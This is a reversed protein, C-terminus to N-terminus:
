QKAANVREILRQTAANLPPVNEPIVFPVDKPLNNSEEKAEDVSLYDRDVVYAEVMTRIIAPEDSKILKRIRRGRGDAEMIFSAETLDKPLYIGKENARYAHTYFLQKFEITFGLLKLPWPAWKHEKKDALGDETYTFIGGKQKMIEAPAYKGPKEYVKNTNGPEKFSEPASLADDNFYVIDLLSPFVLEDNTPISDFEAIKFRNYSKSSLMQLSQDGKFKTGKKTPIFRVAMRESFTTITDSQTNMSFYERVYFTQKMINREVPIIVVEELEYAMPKMAWDKEEPTDIILLEYGLCSITIPYASQPIDSLTGDNWTFGIMNGSADFVSAAGIPTRDAADVIRLQAHLANLTFLFCIIFFLIRKM